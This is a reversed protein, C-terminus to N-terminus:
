VGERKAYATLDPTELKAGAIHFLGEDGVDEPGVCLFGGVREIRLRLITGDGEQFHVSFVYVVGDFTGSVSARSQSTDVIAFASAGTSAAVTTTQRLKGGSAFQVSDATAGGWPDLAANATVTANTPVWTAARDFEESWHLLNPNPAGPASFAPNGQSFVPGSAGPISMSFPM